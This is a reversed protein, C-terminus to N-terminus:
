VGITQLLLLEVNNIQFVIIPIKLYVVSNTVLIGIMFSMHSTMLSIKIIM